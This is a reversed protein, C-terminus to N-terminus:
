NAIEEEIKLVFRDFQEVSQGFWIVGHERLILWAGNRELVTEELGQGYRRMFEQQIPEASEFRGYEIVQSTVMEPFHGGRTIPNYHYHIGIVPLDSGFLCNAAVLFEPSDSSPLKDGEYVVENDVSKTQSVLSFNASDMNTKDTHTQSVLYGEPVKIVIAGDTPARHWLRRQEIIARVQEIEQSHNFQQYELASRLSKDRIPNYKVRITECVINDAVDRASVTRIGHYLADTTDAFISNVGLKQDFKPIDSEARQRYDRTDGFMGYPFATVINVKANPVQALKEIYDKDEDKLLLPNIPGLLFYPTKEDSAPVEGWNLRNVSIGYRSKVEAFAPTLITSDVLESVGEGYPIASNYTFSSVGVHERYDIPKRIEKYM